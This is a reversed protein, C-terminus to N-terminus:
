RILERGARFFNGAGACLIGQGAACPIQHLAGSNSSSNIGALASASDSRLHAFERGFDRGAPFEIILDLRAESLREVLNLNM